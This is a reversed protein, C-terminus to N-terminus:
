WVGFARFFVLQNLHLRAQPRLGFAHGDVIMSWTTARSSRPLWFNFGEARGKTHKTHKTTTQVGQGEKAAGRMQLLVNRRRRRGQM